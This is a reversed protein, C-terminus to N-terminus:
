GVEEIEKGDGEGDGDGDVEDVESRGVEDVCRSTDADRRLRGVLAAAKGFGDDSESWGVEDDVGDWIDDGLAACLDGVM